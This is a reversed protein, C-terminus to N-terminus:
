SCLWASVGGQCAKEEAQPQSDTPWTLLCWDGLDAATPWSISQRRADLRMPPSSELAAEDGSQTTQRPPSLLGPLLSQLLGAKRGQGGHWHRMTMGTKRAQMAAGWPAVAAALREAAAAAPKPAAHRRM